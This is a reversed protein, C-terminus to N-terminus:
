KIGKGTAIGVFCGLIFKITDISFKIVVDNTSTFILVFSFILIVTIVGLAFYLLRFGQNNNDDVNNAAFANGVISIYNVSSLQESKSINQNIGKLEKDVSVLENALEFVKPMVNKRLVPDGNAIITNEIESVLIKSSEIKSNLLNVSAINKNNIEIKLNRNDEHVKIAYFAVVVFLLSIAMLGSFLRIREFASKHKIESVNM